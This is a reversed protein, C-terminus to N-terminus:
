ANGPVLMTIIHEFTSNNYFNTYSYLKFPQGKAYREMRQIAGKVTKLEFMMKNDGAPREAGLPALDNYYGYFKM